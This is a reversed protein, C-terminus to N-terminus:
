RYFLRIPTNRAVHCFTVRNMKEEKQDNNMALCIEVITYAHHTFCNTYSASFFM